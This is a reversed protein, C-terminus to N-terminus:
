ARWRIKPLRRKRPVLIAEADGQDGFHIELCNYSPQNVESACEVVLRAMAAAKGSLDHRQGDVIVTATIEAM